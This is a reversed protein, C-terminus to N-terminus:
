CAFGAIHLIRRVADIYTLSIDDMRSDKRTIYGLEFSRSVSDGPTKLPIPIYDGDGEEGLVGSLFTYADLLKLLSLVTARDAVKISRATELRSLIEDNFFATLDGHDYTVFQYEALEDFDISEKRALPHDKHLYVFANCVTLHHFDLHKEELVRMIRNSNSESIYLIGLGSKQAHVDEIVEAATMERFAFDYGDHTFKRVVEVFAKRAFAYYLTSVSFTKKEKRSYKELLEEYNEYLSRAESIFRAGQETACVGRASRTFIQFGLENELDRVSSTLSPQSIFLKESAKNLSGSEAVSLIYRIQQLTM